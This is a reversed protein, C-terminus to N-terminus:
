NSAYTKPDSTCTKDNGKCGGTTDEVTVETSNIKVVHKKPDFYVNLPLTDPKITVNNLDKGTKRWYTNAAAAVTEALNDVADQRANKVFGNYMPIAVASLILVIVAVVIVEVLTFGKKCRKYQTM